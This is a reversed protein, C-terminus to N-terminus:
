GLRWGRRRLRIGADSIELNHRVSKETEDEVRV